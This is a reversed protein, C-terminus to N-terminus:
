SELKQATLGVLFVHKFYIQTKFSEVDIQSLDLMKARFLKLASESQKNNETLQVQVDSTKIAEFTQSCDFILMNHVDKRERSKVIYNHLTLM